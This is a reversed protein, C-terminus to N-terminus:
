PQAKLITLDVATGGGAAPAPTTTDNARERILAFAAQFMDRHLRDRKDLNPSTALRDMYDTFQLADSAYTAHQAEVFKITDTAYVEAVASLTAKLRAEDDKAGPGGGAATAAVSKDLAGKMATYMQDRVQPMTADMKETAQRQLQDAFTDPLAKLKAFADAVNKPANARLNEQLQVRAAPLQAQFQSAANAAVLDPTVENAYRFYAYGLYGALIIVSLISVIASLLNRQRMQQVTKDMSARTANLDAVVAALTSDTPDPM